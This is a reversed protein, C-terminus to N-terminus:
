MIRAYDVHLVGGIDHVADSLIARVEQAIVGVVSKNSGKYRYLWLPIGSSTKGARRIIDKFRRDSLLLAMMAASGIAGTTANQSSVQQNYNNQLGQQQMGYAGLVDTPAINIGFNPAGTPGQINGGQGMLAAFENIPQNRLLAADSVGQQHAQGALGFLRSQEVGGAKIAQNKADVRSRNLTDMGTDYAASGRQLGEANMRSIADEEQKPFDSNFRAMYADEVRQRDASFDDIGPLKTVGDLSFPKSLTGQVNGIATNAADLASSSAAHQKDFLQQEAPSLTTVQDYQPISSGGAGGGYAGGGYAGGGPPLGAQAWQADTITRGLGQARRIDQIPTSNGKGTISNTIGSLPDPLGFAQAGAGGPNLLSTGLDFGGMAGGGGGSSGGGGAYPGMPYTGGGSGGGNQPGGGGRQSYVISGYPSYSNVRNLQANAEATAVNTGTQAQATLVPDPPAPPTPKGM